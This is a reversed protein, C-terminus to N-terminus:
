AKKKKKRTGSAQSATDADDDDEDKTKRKGGKSSSGSMEENEKEVLRVLTDCRRQLEATTRSKFFWDFRFNWAKRIEQKLQDWAGYGLRNMM